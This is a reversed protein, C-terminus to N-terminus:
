RTNGEAKKKAAPAYKFLYDAVRQCPRLELVTNAAEARLRQRAAAEGAVPRPGAESAEDEAARRAIVFYRGPALNKLEFADGKVAAEYYRLVDDAAETEAPVLHVRLGDPLAAGDKAPTVRGRVAAAGEAVTFTLNNLREGAKVALPLRAADLPPKGPATITLSKVFYEDGLLSTELRYSGAELSVFEFEGKNSPTIQQLFLNGLESEGAKVERGAKLLIEDPALRRKIECKDQGDAARLPEIVLTGAIAGHPRLMIDLGTVDAGKIRARAQGSSGAQKGDPRNLTATIIYEGDPIGFFAFGGDSGRPTFAGIYTQGEVTRTTVNYLFLLFNVNPLETGPGVVKGSIAHGREGRYRIDINGVEEGAQITVPQATDRTSSPYYTPMDNEYVNTMTSLPYKGSALVIYTGSPLSYLRYVGRDDVEAMAALRSGSSKHGEKDRIRIAQVTCGTMADGATTMVTGTIVGGKMLTFNATDGPRYLRRWPEEDPPVYGPVNPTVYYVGRTLDAVRFLGQEDTSAHRSERRLYAANSVYVTANVIPQGAMDTLRGGIAGARKDTKAGAATQPWSRLARHTQAGATAALLLLTIAFALASKM